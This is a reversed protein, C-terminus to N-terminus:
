IFLDYYGRVKKNLEGDKGFDIIKLKIEDSELERLGIGRGHSHWRTPNGLTEAIAKARAKRDADTVPKKTTETEKWDKFKHQSLWSVLLDESHSRAQELDFLEAPDFKKLLYALEARVEEPSTARNIA